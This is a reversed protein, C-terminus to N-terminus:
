EIGMITYWYSDRWFNNIVDYCTDINSFLGYSTIPKELRTALIYFSESNCIGETSSYRFYRYSFSSNLEGRSEIPVKNFLGEEELPKIFTDDSGQGANGIDWGGSADSESDPFQGHSMKYIELANKIQNMDSIRVADRARAFYDFSLVVVITSLIAIVSIVIMLEILTFAKRQM